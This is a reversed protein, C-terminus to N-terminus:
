IRHRVAGSERLLAFVRGAIGGLPLV